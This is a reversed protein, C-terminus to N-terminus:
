ARRRSDDPHEEQAAQPAGPHNRSIQAMIPVCAERCHGCSMYADMCRCPMGPERTSPCPAILRPDNGKPLTFSSPKIPIMDHQSIRGVSRRRRASSTWCPTEGSLRKRVCPSTWAKASSSQWPSGLSKAMAEHTRHQADTLYVQTRRM